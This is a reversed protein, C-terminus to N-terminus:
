PRAAATSSGSPGVEEVERLLGTDVGVRSVGPMSTIPIDETGQCKLIDLRLQDVRTPAEHVFLPLIFNAPTLRSENRWGFASALHGPRRM